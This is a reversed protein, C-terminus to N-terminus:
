SDCFQRTRNDTYHIKKLCDIIADRIYNTVSNEDEKKILWGAYVYSPQNIDFMNTGTNGSEDLYLSWESM